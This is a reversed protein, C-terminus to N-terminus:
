VGKRKIDIYRHLLLEYAGFALGGALVTGVVGGLVKNKKHYMSGAVGGLAAVFLIHPLVPAAPYLTTGPLSFGSMPVRYPENMARKYLFHSQNRM